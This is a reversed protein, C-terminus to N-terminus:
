SRVSIDKQVYTGEPKNSSNECSTGLAISFWYLRYAETLRGPCRGAMGIAWYTPPRLWRGGPSDPPWRCTSKLQVKTPGQPPSSPILSLASHNAVFKNSIGEINFTGFDGTRGSLRCVCARVPATKPVRQCLMMALENFRNSHLYIVYRDHVDVGSCSV